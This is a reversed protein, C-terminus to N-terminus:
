LRTIVIKEGKYFMVTEEFQSVMAGDVTSLEDHEYVFGSSKLIKLAYVVKRKDFEKLLWRKSFPLRSYNDVIYNLVKRATTDRVAGTKELQLINSNGSVKIRCDGLTFFPEIALEMNDKIPSKDFNEYNPVHLGYHLDYRSIEHGSLNHITTFGDRKAIGNVAKGIDSMSTGVRALDLAKNLAELNSDMLKKYKDTEIELTFACDTIFGNDSVGFDIKVLDGKELVYSKDFVTYHAAVENVCVTCPFAPLYGSDFISNEVLDIIETIDIGMKVIDLVDSKLKSTFKGLKKLIDIDFDNEDKAM